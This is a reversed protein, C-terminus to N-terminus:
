LLISLENIRRDESCEVYRSEFCSALSFNEQTFGALAAKNDTM